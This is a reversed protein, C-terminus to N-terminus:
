SRNSVLEGQAAPLHPLWSVEGAPRRDLLVPCPRGSVTGLRMLLLTGDYRGTRTLIWIFTSSLRYVNSMALCLELNEQFTHSAARHRVMQFQQFMSIINFHLRTQTQHLKQASYTIISYTRTPTKDWSLLLYLSFFLSLTCSQNGFGLVTSSTRKYM